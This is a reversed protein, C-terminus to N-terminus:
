LLEIGIANTKAQHNRLLDDRLESPSDPHLRLNPNSGRKCERNLQPVVLLLSFFVSAPLDVTVLVLQDECPRRSVARTCNFIDVVEIKRIDQCLLREMLEIDPLDASRLVVLEAGVVGLQGLGPHGILLKDYTFILHAPLSDQENIILREINICQLDNQFSGQFKVHCAKTTNRFTPFFCKLFHPSLNFLVSAAKVHDQHVAIHREHIPILRCVPDPLLDM